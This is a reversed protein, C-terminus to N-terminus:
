TLKNAKNDAKFKKIKCLIQVASGIDCVMVQHIMVVNVHIGSDKTSTM